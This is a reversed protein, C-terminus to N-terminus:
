KRLVCALLNVGTFAQNAPGTRANQNPASDDAHTLNRFHIMKTDFTFLTHIAGVGDGM